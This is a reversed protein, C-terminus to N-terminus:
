PATFEAELQITALFTATIRNRRRKPKRGPLALAILGVVFGRRTLM